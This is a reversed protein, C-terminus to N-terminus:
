QTRTRLIYLFPSTLFSGFIYFPNAFDLCVRKETFLESHYRFQEAKRTYAQHSEFARGESDSDSVRDLQAVPVFLLYLIIM